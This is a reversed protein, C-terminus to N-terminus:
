VENGAIYKGGNGELIKEMQKMFTPLTESAFTAKEAAKKEEDKEFVFKQLETPCSTSSITFVRQVIM